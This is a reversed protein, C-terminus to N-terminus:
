TTTEDSMCDVALLTQRALPAPLLYLVPTLYLTFLAALEFWKNRM